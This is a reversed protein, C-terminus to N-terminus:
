SGGTGAGACRRRRTSRPSGAGWGLPSQSSNKRDKGLPNHPNKSPTRPPGSAAGARGSQLPIPSFRRPLRRRHIHIFSQRGAQRGQHTSGSYAEQLSYGQAATGRQHLVTSPRHKPFTIPLTKSVTLKAPRGM